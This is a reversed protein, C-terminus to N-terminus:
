CRRNTWQMSFKVKTGATGVSRSEAVHTQAEHVEVTKTQM